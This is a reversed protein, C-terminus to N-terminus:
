AGPLLSLVWVHPTIFHSLLAYRACVPRTTRVTHSSSVPVHLSTPTTPRASSPQRAELRSYFSLLLTIPLAFMLLGILLCSLYLRCWCWLMLVRTGARVHAFGMALRSYELVRKTGRKGM